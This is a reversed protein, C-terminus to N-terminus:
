QKEGDSFSTDWAAREAKEAQWEPGNERLTAFDSSLGELFTHRRYTEMAQGLVAQIPM